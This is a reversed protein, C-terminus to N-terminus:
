YKLMFSGKMLNFETGGTTAEWTIGDNAKNARYNNYEDKYTNSYVGYVTVRSDEKASIRLNNQEIHASIRKDSSIVPEGSVNLYTGNVTMYAGSKSIVALADSGIGDAAFAEGSINIYATTGDEFSLKIYGNGEDETISAPTEAHDRLSIVSVIKTENAAPATYKLRDSQPMDAYSGSPPYYTGSPNVFGQYKQASMAPYIMKLDLCDTGNDIVASDDNFSTFNWGNIWWEISGENNSSYKVDDIVIFTEPRLYIFYRDVKDFTGANRYGKTSPDYVYNYANRADGCALDFKDSSLYYSIDGNAIMAYTSQGKGGDHTIANHAYTANYYNSYHSSGYSDYYGSDIALQKGNRAITFSNQDAHSHNHSGYSSSKFYIAARDTINMQSLMSVWGIDKFYHSKPLYSPSLPNPASLTRTYYTSYHGTQGFGCNNLFWRSYRNQNMRANNNAALAWSPDAEGTSQDGFEAVTYGGAGLNYIFNNYYNRFFPKNYM